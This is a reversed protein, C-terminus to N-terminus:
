LETAAGLVEPLLDSLVGFIVQGDNVSRDGPFIFRVALVIILSSSRCAKVGVGKSFTVCSLKPPPDLDDDDPPTLPLFHSQSVQIDQINIRCDYSIVNCKQEIRV